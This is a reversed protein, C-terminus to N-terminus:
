AGNHHVIFGKIKLKREIAAQLNEAAKRDGPGAWVAFLGTSKQSVVARWGHQKLQDVLGQARPQENFAGLQVYYGSSPETASTTSAPKAAPKSQRAKQEPKETEVKARADIVAPKPPEVVSETQAAPKSATARAPSVKVENIVPVQKEVVAPRDPSPEFLDPMIAAIAIVFLCSSALIWATRHEVLSAHWNLPESM